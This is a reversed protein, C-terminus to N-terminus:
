GLALEFGFWPGAALAATFLERDEQDRIGRGAEMALRYYEQAGSRDGVCALARALGEYTFALDFDGLRHARCLDLCLRAHYLAPEPRNLITYVHAIQWEGRALHVETGVQKWLARSAHALHIMELDDDATRDTQEILDWTKNFLEVATQRQWERDTLRPQNPEVFTDKMVMWPHFEYSLRQVKAMPDTAGYAQAESLSAARYVGLGRLHGNDLLPGSVVLKGEARLRDYNALHAAQLRDIEPTEDPTWNPGKSLIALYYVTMGEPVESEPQTQAPEDSM